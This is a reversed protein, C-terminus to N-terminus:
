IKKIVVRRYPEKGESYTDIEENDHLETHIIRRENPNMPELKIIRGSSVAKKAMKNALNKLTQERKERYNNIDLNVHKYNDSNRNEALSMLYQIADLTDGRRGIIIGTDRYDANEILYTIREGNESRSVEADIDMSDLIQKLLLHSQSLGDENLKEDKIPSEQSLSGDSTVIESTDEKEEQFYSEEADIFNQYDAKEEVSEKQFVDEESESPTEEQIEVQDDSFDEEIDLIEKETKDEYLAEDVISDVLNSEDVTVRVVADQSGFLGLFGSKAEEIVEVSVESRGVNLITLAENVADEVTKGTKIVSKM